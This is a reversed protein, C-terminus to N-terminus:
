GDCDSAGESSTTGVDCGSSPRLGLSQSLHTEYQQLKEGTVIELSTPQSMFVVPQPTSQTQTAMAVKPVSAALGTAVVSLAALAVKGAPQSMFVVPQPASQIEKTISVEYEEM